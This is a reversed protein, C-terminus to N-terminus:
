QVNCASLACVLVCVSMRYVCERSVCVGKERCVRVAPM